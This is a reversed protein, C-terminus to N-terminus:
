DIQFTRPLEEFRGADVGWRAAIKCAVLAGVALLFTTPSM